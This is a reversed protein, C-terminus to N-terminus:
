PQESRDSKGRRTGDRTRRKKAKREERKTKQEPETKLAKLLIIGEGSALEEFDPSRHKAEFGELGRGKLVEPRVLLYDAPGGRPYILVKKRNSVHPVLYRTASVSATAPIQEIARALFEYRARGAEVVEQTKFHVPERWHAVRFARNELFAGFKWSVLVAAIALSVLLARRLRRSELGLAAAVRSGALSTLGYPTLVLVFPLLISSYQKYISHPGPKSSLLCFVLGYGLLLWRRGSFLPLFACPLLMLLLYLLKPEELAVSLTFVPNTLMTLLFDPAGGGEYPMMQEFHTRYSYSGGKGSMFIDSETMVFAKVVVFYLLACFITLLGRRPRGLGAAVFLGIGCSLLAMDERTLLILGLTVWYGWAHDRELFYLSWIVLPVVLALSHFEYLNIGHLAPHLLYAGAVVVAGLTGRLVRSAVLYLPIAGSALWTSQIVLLTEARPALLYFPTLAALFPDFHTSMHTGGKVFSSALFSGHSTNWVLNDYIALDFSPFNFHRVNQISFHSLVVAYGVAAAAVALLGVLPRQPPRPRLEGDASRRSWLYGSTGGITAVLLILFLAFFAAMREIGPAALAAAPPCALLILLASNCRRTSEVLTSLQRPRLRVFRHVYIAGVALFSALFYPLLRQPFEPAVQNSLIYERQDPFVLLWLLTAPSLCILGALVFPLLWGRTSGQEIAHHPGHLTSPSESPM